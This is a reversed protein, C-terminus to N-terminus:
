LPLGLKYYYEEDKMRHIARFDPTAVLKQAANDYKKIWIYELLDHGLMFPLNPFGPDPREIQNKIVSFEFTLPIVNAVQTGGSVGILSVEGPDQGMFSEKNYTGYFDKGQAVEGLLNIFDFDVKEPKYYGTIQIRLDFSPIDVGSLTNETLGIAGFVTLAEPKDPTTSTPAQEYPAVPLGGTQFNLNKFVKRTGGGITFNMQVYPLSLVTDVNSMEAAGLGANFDASYTATAVWYGDARETLRIDVLILLIENYTVRGYAGSILSVGADSTPLWRSAPLIAYALELAVVDKDYNYFDAKNFIPDITDDLCFAVVLVEQATTFGASLDRSGDKYVLEVDYHAM